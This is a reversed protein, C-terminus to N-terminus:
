WLFPAKLDKKFLMLALTIEHSGNSYNSLDSAVYDYSYSLNFLNNIYVGGMFVVAQTSKYSIGAWTREKILTKLNVDWIDDYSANFKYLVSPLLRVDQTLRIRLGAMLKHDIDENFNLVENTNLAKRYAKFAAYSIYFKKGYLMAGPNIDFFTSKGGNALLWQYFDDDDPRTLTIKELDRRQNAITGSVGISLKLKKGLPMHLAYNLYGSIQEFAGTYRFWMAVLVM